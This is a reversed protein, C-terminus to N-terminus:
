EAALIAGPSQGPQGAGQTGDEAGDAGLLDLDDVLVPRRSGTGFFQRCLASGANGACRIVMM